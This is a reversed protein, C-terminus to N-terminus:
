EILGKAKLGNSLGTGEPYDKLFDPNIQLAKEWMELAEQDKAEMLYFEGKSDYYNASDSDIAVEIAKDITEHAKSYNEQSIFCYALLNLTKAYQKSTYGLNELLRQEYQSALSLYIEAEKYSELRHTALGVRYIVEAFRQTIETDNPNKDYQIQYEKFAELFWLKAAQYDEQRLCEKGMYYASPVDFYDETISVSSEAKMMQIRDQMYKNNISALKYREKLLISYLQTTQDNNMLPYLDFWSQKENSNDLSKSQLILYVLCPEQSKMEEPINYDSIDTSQLKSSITKENKKIWDKIEKTSINDLDKFEVDAISDSLMRIFLKVKEARSSNPFEELFAEYDEKTRANDYAEIEANLREAAAKEEEAMLREQEKLAAENKYYIYSGGLMAIIAIMLAIVALFRNRARRRKQTEENLLQIKERELRAKEEANQKEQLRLEKRAKIVPCLIDHIYEVRISGAYSFQRLIKADILQDIIQKGNAIDGKCIEKCLVDYYEYDRRGESNVLWDELFEVYESPINEICSLYFDEIIQGGKKEVLSSTITEGDSEEYLRHLYLSLVAADVSIEPAGDLKFDKRGTVKEIILRAVDKSVLGQRPLLIIDAAQEENIQRLGYRHQKLSPIRSTYYEFESLFDERISFLFHLVNDDIFEAENTKIEFDLDDFSFVDTVSPRSPEQQYDNKNPNLAEPCTDNLLDALEDFFARRTADNQQLTFIEEFQDFIFLVKIREGESNVFTNRHIFEWLLPMESHCQSFSNIVIGETKVAEQIQQIYSSKGEKHDLRIYVPVFGQRRVNPIVGANILSSKGIGSQGYLLTDDDSLIRQTLERINDDRGYLITGETYSQLGLWPNNKKTTM